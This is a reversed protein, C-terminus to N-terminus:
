EVIVNTRLQGNSAIIVFARKKSVMMASYDWGHYATEINHFDRTTRSTSIWDFKGGQWKGNGDLYFLCALARSADARDSAGFVECGGKVWRYSMGSKTIKLDAIQAEDSEVAGGGRFGGHSFNFEQFIDTTSPEVSQTPLEVIKREIHHSLKWEPYETCGDFLVALVAIMVFMGATLYGCEIFDEREEKTM